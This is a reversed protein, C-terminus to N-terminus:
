PKGPSPSEDRAERVTLEVWVTEGNSKKDLELTLAKGPIVHRVVHQRRTLVIPRPDGNALSNALGDEVVVDLRVKDGPASRAEFQVQLGYPTAGLKGGSHYEARTGALTTLDPILVETKDFVAKGDSYSVLENRFLKGSLTYTKSEEPLRPPEDALPRDALTLLALFAVGLALLKGM